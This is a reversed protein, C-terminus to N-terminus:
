LVFMSFKRKLYHKECVAPASKLIRDQEVSHNWEAIGRHNQDDKEGEQDYGFKLYIEELVLDEDKANLLNQHHIKKESVKWM